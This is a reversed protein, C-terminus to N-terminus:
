SAKLKALEREKDLLDQFDDAKLLVFDGAGRRTVSFLALHFRRDGAWEKYKNFANVYHSIAAHTQYAKCDWVDTESQGDPASDGYDPRWM